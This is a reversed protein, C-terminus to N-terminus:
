RIMFAASTGSTTTALGRSVIEHLLAIISQQAALSKGDVSPLPRAFHADSSGVSVCAELIRRETDTSHLIDPNKLMIALMAAIGYAGWNSIGAPICVESKIACAVGSQCPCLCVDGFPNAQRVADEITGSGVENGNDICAITLIGKRNAEEFVEYVKSMQPGFDYGRRSHLIGKKNPGVAEIAFVAKPKYTSILEKASKRSSEADYSLPIIAGSTKLAKSTEYDEVHVGAALLSAKIPPIDREGAVLIPIAGLGLNVARALAAAGPPGDTEGHPYMPLCGYGTLIIVNDGNGVKQIIKEAAVLTLPKGRTAQRAAEYLRPIIGRIPGNGPEIEISILRKM